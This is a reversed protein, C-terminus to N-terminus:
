SRLFFPSLASFQFFPHSRLQNRPVFGVHLLVAMAKIQHVQKGVGAESTDRAAVLTQEPFGSYQKVDHRLERM